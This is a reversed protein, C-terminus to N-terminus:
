KNVKEGTSTLQSIKMQEFEYDNTIGFTKGREEQKVLITGDNVWVFKMGKERAYERVRGLLMKRKVTLHENIYVPTAQLSNNVKSALLPQRNNDAKYKKHKAIWENRMYRSKLLAVIPRQTGARKTRVRHAVQIDGPQLNVIGLSKGIAEVVAIPDEGSTEPFNQIEINSMRNRVELDDLRSELEEIQKDKKKIVEELEGYKRNFEQKLEKVHNAMQQELHNFKFELYERSDGGHPSVVGKPPSNTLDMLNGDKVKPNEQKEPPSNQLAPKCSKCKFKNKHKMNSFNQDTQGACTYHMYKMCASCKLADESHLEQNCLFCFM